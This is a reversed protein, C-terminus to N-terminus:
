GAGDASVAARVMAAVEAAREADRYRGRPWFFGRLGDRPRRPVVHTHFHPVSQSVRNNSAVFSGRADMAAEVAGALRRVVAYYPGLLEPPVDTLTPLHERPVVLVHGEFLPRVDLFAVVSGDEYVRDAPAEGRVIRCFVCEM